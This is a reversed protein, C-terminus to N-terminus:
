ENEKKQKLAYGALNAAPDVIWKARWGALYEFAECAFSSTDSRGATSISMKATETKRPAISSCTRSAPLIRPVSWTFLLLIAINIQFLM